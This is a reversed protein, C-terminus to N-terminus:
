IRHIHVPMEGINRNRQKQGFKHIAKKDVIATEGYRTGTTLFSILFLNGMLYLDTSIFEKMAITEKM